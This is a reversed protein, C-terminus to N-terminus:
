ESLLRAVRSAAKGRHSMRNKEDEPIEAVTRGRDELLFLPDYGFGGSGRPATTLVGHWTEQVLYFRDASFVAAMACVYYARRDDIGELQALLYQNRDADTLKKQGDASGYRASYVGPAGGLAPVCLGSDDAIVPLGGANAQEFLAFAKGLCNGRFTDATEDFYFDVGLDAPLLLDHGALIGQLERRKHMNNTALLLKM